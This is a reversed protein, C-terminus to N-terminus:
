RRLVCLDSMNAEAQKREALIRDEPTNNILCARISHQYSVMLFHTTGAVVYPRARYPQSTCRREFCGFDAASGSAAGGLGGYQMARPHPHPQGLGTQPEPSASPSRADWNWCATSPM